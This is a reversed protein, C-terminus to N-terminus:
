PARLDQSQKPGWSARPEPPSSRATSGHFWRRRHSCEFRSNPTAWRTLWLTDNTDLFLVIQAAPKEKALVFADRVSKAGDGIFMQVLQPGALCSVNLLRSPVMPVMAEGIQESLHLSPVQRGRRLAVNTGGPGALKLFTANTAAACARAMM